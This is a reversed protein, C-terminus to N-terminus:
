GTHEYTTTMCIHTLLLNDFGIASFASSRLVRLSRRAARLAAPISVLGPIVLARTRTLAASTIALSTEIGTGAKPGAGAAAATHM